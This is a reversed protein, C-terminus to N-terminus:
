KLDLTKIRKLIATQSVSFSHSLIDMINKMTYNHEKYFNFLDSFEAKPMLLETAFLNADVEEKPLHEDNTELETFFVTKEIRDDKHVLYHWMEHAITWFQHGRSQQSNVAIVDGKNQPKMALYGNIKSPAPSISISSFDEIFVDIGFLDTLATIPFAFGDTCNIFLSRIFQANKEPSQNLNFFNILSEKENMPKKTSLQHLFVVDGM